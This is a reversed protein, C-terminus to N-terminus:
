QRPWGYLYHDLNDSLDNPLKSWEEPPVEAALGALVDEVPPAASDYSPESIPQPHLQDVRTIRLVKGQASVEGSGTVRLRRTRHGKLADTVQEEQDPFFPVTVSTREDLWLQFRRQRVDAELVEGTVDIFSEHEPEAFSALRSRSVATFRTPERGRATIEVSEDDTLGQGWKLYEPILSRPFKDPLPADRDLARVVDWALAIAEDVETPEREYLEYQPEDILVELPAVASGEEIRRLCLRTRDEFRKPLRERDPNATRWLAKATEAVMRQFQTLEALATLDLAHDRFRDGKFTLRVVEKWQGAM